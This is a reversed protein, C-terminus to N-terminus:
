PWVPLEPRCQVRRMHQGPADALIEEPSPRPIQGEAAENREITAQEADEAPLKPDPPM